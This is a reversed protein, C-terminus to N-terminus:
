YKDLEHDLCPAEDWRPMIHRQISVGRPQMSRRRPPAWSQHHLAMELKGVRRRSRRPVGATLIRYTRYTLSRRTPAAYTTSKFKSRCISLAQPWHSFIKISSALQATTKIGLLNEIFYRVRGRFGEATRGRTNNRSTRKRQKRPRKRPSIERMKSFSAEALLDTLYLSSCADPVKLSCSSVRTGHSHQLKLQCCSRLPVM